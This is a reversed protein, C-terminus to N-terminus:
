KKDGMISDHIAQALSEIDEEEGFEQCIGHEGIAKIISEVGASKSMHSLQKETEHRLGTSLRLASRLEENEEKLRALEEKLRAVIPIALEHYANYGRRFQADEGPCPVLNDFGIEKREPLEESESLHSQALAVLGSIAQMDFESICEGTKIFAVREVAEKLQERDSLNTM